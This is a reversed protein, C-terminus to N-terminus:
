SVQGKRNTKELIKLISKHNEKYFRGMNSKILRRYAQRYDAFASFMGASTWYGDIYSIHLAILALLIRGDTPKALSGNM